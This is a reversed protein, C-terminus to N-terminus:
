AARRGFSKKYNADNAAGRIKDFLDFGRALLESTSLTTGDDFEFSDISSSNFVDNKDFDAIHIEDGNGLNLKLSGLSLTINNSNVGAGFRLINHEGKTDYIWDKGDGLNYIYTDQGTGGILSDDGTGGILIDNGEEGYIVDDDAGGDLYDDGM